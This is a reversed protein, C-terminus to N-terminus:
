HFMRKSEFKLKHTQLMASKKETARCKVEYLIKEDFCDLPIFGKQYAYWIMVATTANVLLKEFAFPNTKYIQRIGRPTDGWGIGQNALVHDNWPVVFLPVTFKFKEYETLNPLADMVVLAVPKPYPKEGDLATKNNISEMHADSINVITDQYDDIVIIRYKMATEERVTKETISLSIDMHSIGGQVFIKSPIAVGESSNGVIGAAKMQGILTESMSMSISVDASPKSKEVVKDLWKCCKPPIFCRGFGDGCGRMKDNRTQRNTIPVDYGIEKEMESVLLLTKDVDITFVNNM